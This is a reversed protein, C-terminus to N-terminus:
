KKMNNLLISNGREEWDERGMLCKKTSPLSTAAPASVIPIKKKEDINKRAM